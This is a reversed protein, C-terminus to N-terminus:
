EIFVRKDKPYKVAYSVKVKKESAPEIQLKWTIIGTEKTYKGGSYDLAEVEIDKNMSVPLQDELKLQLKQKKNNRITVEWARTERKSNGITKTETFDKLKVRTVIISKDRGLSLDLTDNTNRVNLRSKGVYTDEFFLNIDGTLLNYNEWGTIRAILFAERDLKPACYNEFIAPLTFDQINITYEKNDSPVDYPLRIAFELNTQNENVETYQAVTPSAYNEEVVEDVAIDSDAEKYSKKIEISNYGVSASPALSRLMQFDIFWPQLIPKEGQQQPNATSLRIKVHNWDEGTNQIVNANYFLRVPSQVDSARVDYIPTWAADLVTYTLTLKGAVDADASINAHIESTPQNEKANLLDLQNQVRKVKENFVNSERALRIEEKKIETLRTRYYEVTQKLEALVVGKETSRIDRNAKLMDEESKLVQLLGNLLAYQDEYIKLSDELIKVTKDKRGASMYNIQHAISLIIFNGEGKLQISQPNINVPLNSFVLSSPGKLFSIKAERTVQAGSLYVTVSTISSSVEKSEAARASCFPILIFLCPIIIKM